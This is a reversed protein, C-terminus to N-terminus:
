AKWTKYGLWVTELKEFQLLHKAVRDKTSYGNCGKIIADTVSFRRQKRAIQGELWKEMPELILSETILGLIRIRLERLNKCVWPLEEVVEMDMQFSPIILVELNPCNMILVPITWSHRSLSFEDDWILASDNGKKRVEEDNNDHIELYKLSNKYSLLGLVVKHNISKCSFLAIPISILAKKLLTHIVQISSYSNTRTSIEVMKPCHKKLTEVFADVNIDTLRTCDIQLDLRRINPFHKLISSSQEDPGFRAMSAYLRTVRYHKFPEDNSNKHFECRLISVRNLLPCASLLLSFTEQAMSLYDLSLRTLGIAFPSTKPTLVKVFESNLFFMSPFDIGELKLMRLKNKHQRILDIVKTSFTPPKTSFRAALSRLNKISPEQMLPLRSQSLFGEVDRIHQGHKSILKPNQELFSGHKNLNICHWLKRTFEPCWSKCVLSCSIVDNISLFLCLHARVEPIDFPSNTTMSPFHHILSTHLRTKTPGHLHSTSSVLARVFLTTLWINLICDYVILPISAQIELGIRCMGDKDIISVRYKLTLAFIVSIPLLVAINFKFLPSKWRTVGVSTVAHVREVLFLYIVIKSGAYLFICVFNSITCSVQNNNNTQVLMAAMLSFLWSIVYLIVVLIRPYNLSSLKTAATKRGLLVAMISVCAVSLFLSVGELPDPSYYQKHNTTDFTVGEEM